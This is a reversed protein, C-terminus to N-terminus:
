VDDGFLRRSGFIGISYPIADKSVNQSTAVCWNILSKIKSDVENRQEEDMLITAGHRIKKQDQAKQFQQYSRKFISNNLSEYEKTFPVLVWDKAEYNGSSDKDVLGLGFLQDLTLKIEKESSNFFKSILKANIAENKDTVNIFILIEMALPNKTLFIAQPRNIVLTQSSPMNELQPQEQDGVDAFVAKASADPMQSRAWALLGQRKEINLSNMIELALTVSPIATGKEVTSYYFYTCPLGSKYFFDRANKYKKGRVNKVLEGFDV